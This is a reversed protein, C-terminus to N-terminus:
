AKTSGGLSLLIPLGPNLHAVKAVNLSCMAIQNEKAKKSNFQQLLMLKWCHGCVGFHGCSEFVCTPVRTLCVMCEPDAEETVSLECSSDHIEMSKCEIDSARAEGNAGNSMSESGVAWFDFSHQTAWYRARPSSQIKYCVPACGLGVNQCMDQFEGDIIHGQVVHAVGPMKWQHMPCTDFYESWMDTILVQGDLDSKVSSEMDKYDYDDLPAGFLSLYRHVVLRRSIMKVIGVYNSNNFYPKGLCVMNPLWLLGINSVSADGRSLRTCQLEEYFIYGGFQVCGADAPARIIDVHSVKVMADAKGFVVVAVGMPVGNDPDDVFHFSVKDCGNANRFTRTLVGQWVNIDDVPFNLLFVLFIGDKLSHEVRKMAHVMQPVRPFARSALLCIMAASSPAVYKQCCM